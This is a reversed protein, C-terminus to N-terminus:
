TEKRLVLLKKYLFADWLPAQNGFHQEIAVRIEPFDDFAIIGGPKVLPTWDIIDRTVGEPRHDGDIYLLDIAPMGADRWGEFVNHSYGVLPTVRLLGADHINRKWEDLLSGAVHQNYQFGGSGDFPDVAYVDADPASLGFVIASKGKFSGIEVITGGAPVDRALGSLILAQDTPLWTAPQDVKRAIPWIRTFFDLTHNM